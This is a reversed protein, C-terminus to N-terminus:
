RLSRLAPSRGAMEQAKRMWKMHVEHDAAATCGEDAIASMDHASLTSKRSSFSYFNRLANLWIPFLRQVTQQSVTWHVIVRVHLSQISSLELRGLGVTSRRCVFQLPESSILKSCSESFKALINGCGGFFCMQVLTCVFM